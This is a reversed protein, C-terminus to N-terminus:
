IDLIIPTSTPLVAPVSNGPSSGTAAIQKRKEMGVRHSEQDDPYVVASGKGTLWHEAYGLMELFGIVVFQLEYQM